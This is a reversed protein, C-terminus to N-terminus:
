SYKTYAKSYVPSVLYQQANLEHPQHCMKKHIHSAAPVDISRIDFAHALAVM